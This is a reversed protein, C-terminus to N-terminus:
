RSSWVNLRLCDESWPLTKGDRRAPQPCAAGFTKTELVGPWTPAPQPASWRLPGVPPAAYPIGRYVLGDGRVCGGSTMVADAPCSTARPAAPTGKPSDHRGRCAILALALITSRLM